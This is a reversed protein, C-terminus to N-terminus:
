RCLDILQASWHITLEDDRHQRCANILMELVDQRYALDERAADTTMLREGIIIASDLKLIPLLPLVKKHFLRCDRLFLQL